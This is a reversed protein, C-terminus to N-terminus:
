LLRVLSYCWRARVVGKGAIAVDHTQFRVANSLTSDKLFRLAIKYKEIGRYNALPDKFQVDPSYLSFDEGGTPGWMGALHEELGDAFKITAPDPDVSDGSGAESYCSVHLTRRQVARNAASAPRFRCACRPLFGPSPVQLSSGCSPFVFGKAVPLFCEVLSLAVLVCARTRLGTLM